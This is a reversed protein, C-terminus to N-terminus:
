PRRSSRCTRRWSAWGSRKNPPRTPLSNPLSEGKDRDELWRPAEGETPGQGEGVTPSDGGAAEEMSGPALAQGMDEQTAPTGGGLAVTDDAFPPEGGDAEQGGVEPGPGGPPPQDGDEPM